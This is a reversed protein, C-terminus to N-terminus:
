SRVAKGAGPVIRRTKPQPLDQRPNRHWLVTRIGNLFAPTDIHRRPKLRGAVVRGNRLRFFKQVAWINLKPLVVTKDHAQSLRGFDRRLDRGVRETLRQREAM